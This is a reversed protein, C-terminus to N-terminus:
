APLHETHEMLLMAVQILRRRLRLLKNGRRPEQHPRPFAVMLLVVLMTIATTGTTAATVVIVIGVIVPGLRQAALNAGVTEMVIMTEPVGPLLVALRAVSGLVPMAVVAAAVTTLAQDLRSVPPHQEM